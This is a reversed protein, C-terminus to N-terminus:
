ASPFVGGGYGRLTLGGDIGFVQGTIWSSDKSLLLSVMPGFQEPLGYPGLPTIKSFQRVYEEDQILEGAMESKTFGSRVCNVRIKYQGLEDAAVRVYHDLAAKAAGYAALGPYTIAAAASSLAVISGGKEKMRPFCSRITNILPYVNNAFEETAYEVTTEHIPRFDGGGAVVFVGDIEGTAGAAHSVAAEVQSADRGDVPKSRLRDAAAGTEQLMRDKAAELKSETRAGITVVNGARLLHVATAYGMGASGGLVLVHPPENAATSM